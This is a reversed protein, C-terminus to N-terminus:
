ADKIQKLKAQLDHYTISHLGDSSYVEKDNITLLLTEGELDCCFDYELEIEADYEQLLNALRELFEIRRTKSM